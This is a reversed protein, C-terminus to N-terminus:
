NMLIGTGNCPECKVTRCYGVKGGHCNENPCPFAWLDSNIDRGTGMCTPCTELGMELHEGSGGCLGCIVM